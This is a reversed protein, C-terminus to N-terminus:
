KKKTTPKPKLGNAFNVARAFWQGLQAEDRLLAEPVAVYGNMVSNYRIVPANDYVGGFEEIDDKSLRICMEGDPGVFSFMNGNLATYATAQGKRVLSPHAALIRDYIAIVEPRDFSM